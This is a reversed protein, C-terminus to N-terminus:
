MNWPPDPFQFALQGKIYRALKSRGKRGPVNISVRRREVNPGDGPYHHSTSGRDVAYKREMPFTGRSPKLPYLTLDVKVMMSTDHDVVDVHRIAAIRTRKERYGGGPNDHSIDFPTLDPTPFDTSASEQYFSNRRYGM